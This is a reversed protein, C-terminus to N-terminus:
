LAARLLALVVSVIKATMIRAPKKDKRAMGTSSLGSTVTGIMMVVMM